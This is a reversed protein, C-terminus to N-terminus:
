KRRRWLLYACGAIAAGVIRLIEHNPARGFVLGFIVAGGLCAGLLAQFRFLVQEKSQTVQRSVHAVDGEIPYTQGLMLENIHARIIIKDYGMLFADIHKLTGDSFLDVTPQQSVIKSKALNPETRLFTNAMAVM